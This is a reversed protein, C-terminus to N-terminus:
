DVACSPLHSTELSSANVSYKADQVKEEHSLLCLPLAISYISPKNGTRSSASRRSLLSGKLQLIIKKFESNRPIM